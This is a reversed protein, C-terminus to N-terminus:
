VTQLGQVAFTKYTLVIGRERETVDSFYPRFEYDSIIGIVRVEANGASKIIVNQGIAEEPSKFGFRRTAAKSILISKEDAPNDAQFNRGAILKINFTNLFSEDVGGNTDAGFWTDSGPLQVNIGGLDPEAITSFSCTADSVGAMKKAENLLSSMKAVNADSMSFPGDVM